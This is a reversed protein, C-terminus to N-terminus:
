SRSLISDQMENSISFGPLDTNHTSLTLHHPGPILLVSGPLLGRTM